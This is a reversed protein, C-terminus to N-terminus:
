PSMSGYFIARLPLMTLSKASDPNNLRFADARNALQAYPGRIVIGDLLGTRFVEVKRSWSASVDLYLCVQRRTEDAEGKFSFSIM